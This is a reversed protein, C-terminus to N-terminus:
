HASVMAQAELNAGAAILLNLVEVNGDTVAM